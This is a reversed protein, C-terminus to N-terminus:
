RADRDTTASLEEDDLVQRRGSRFAAVKVFWGSIQRGNLTLSEPKLQFLAVPLAPSVDFSRM